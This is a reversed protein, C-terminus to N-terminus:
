AGQVESFSVGTRTAVFNLTVFNISRTPKIYIDAVFENRDIVEGTNNTDDCVVMFDTVGRRAKVDRLFPEVINRFYSRTFADNFEFLQTEGAIAISKELVIFLRRVNIRDFASPKSLLTKDGWLVTGQGRKTVVPNIGNKYLTDRESQKPNWALKTVNKIQGRTLGGPSWWPDNTKDTRAMLGAVDPNIPMWRYVDNYKDYQYKWNCDMTGYSSNVNFTGAVREAVVAAAEAGANNYVSVLAPSVAVICDKRVEAINEIVYKGIALSHAGTFLLNVDISEADLFLDYGTEVEGASPASGDLGGALKRSEAGVLTKFTSSSSGGWATSGTVNTPHDMWWIYDSTNLVEKYYNTAGDFTKADLAKSIGVFKELITGPTGSFLGDHDEVIVHLEDLSGGFTSVYDSTGPAGDFLDHFVWNAVCSAQTTIVTGGATSCNATLTATTDGGISLVTGILTTGSYIKAGIHLETLFQTGSTGTVTPSGDTTSLLGTLAKEFTASDAMSVRLSNGLLGPYKAAFAGVSGEGASYNDDYDDQNKIAIATGSTVANKATADTVRVLKLSNAYGLFNAASFFSAYTASNPKGFFRVLDLESAVDHVELVPGWQFNGVFGGISTPVSPVTTTLDKEVVLVGASLQFPM